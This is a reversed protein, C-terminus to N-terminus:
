SVESIVHIDAFLALVTEGARVRQGEQVLLTVDDEILVDVRSGFKIIGIREGAAVRQEESLFSVIRRAILGAIQLVLIRKSNSNKLETYFRENTYPADEASANSRSGAIHMTSVVEGDVPARNVHVDLCTWSSESAPGAMAKQRTGM